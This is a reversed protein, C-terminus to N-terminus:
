RRRAPNHTHCYGSGAQAYGRCPRGTTSAIARCVRPRMVMPVLQDGDLDLLVAGSDRRRPCDRACEVTFTALILTESLWEADIPYSEAGCGHCTIYGAALIPDPPM